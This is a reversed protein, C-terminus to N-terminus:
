PEGWMRLLNHYCGTLEVLSPHQPVDRTLRVIAMDLDFLMARRADDRVMSQVWLFAALRVGRTVPNVRHRSTAPYLVMDGAPLKVAQPGYTDEIVLEGGDYTEPDALFLTASLDTRLRIGSGPLLRVAGDVHTGFTMQSAGDYRNFMPPYVRAPLAASLFQPHRELAAVVVAGLEQAALSDEALQLNHKVARGQHGATVRGDVWADGASQLRERVLRAQEPNLMGPIRLLM